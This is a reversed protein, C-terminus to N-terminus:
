QITTVFDVGPFATDDNRCVVTPRTDKGKGPRCGEPNPDKGCYTRTLRIIGGSITLSNGSWSGVPRILSLNSEGGAEIEWMYKDPGVWTFWRTLAQHNWSQQGNAGLDVYVFFHRSREARYTTLLLDWFNKANQLGVPDQGGASGVFPGVHSNWVCDPWFVQGSLPIQNQGIPLGDTDVSVTIPIPAGFPTEFSAVSGSVRLVGAREASVLGGSLVATANPGPNAGTGKGALDVERTPSTIDAGQCSVMFTTAALALSCLAIVPRM